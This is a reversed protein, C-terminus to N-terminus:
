KQRKIICALDREFSAVALRLQGDEGVRVKETKGMFTGSQPDYWRVEYAGPLMGPIEQTFDGVQELQHGESVMSWQYNLNKMWLAADAGAYIARIFGFVQEDPKAALRGPVLTQFKLHAQGFDLEGAFRALDGFKHWLDLPDIYNDWWWSMPIVPTESFWGAWISNHLGIHQSDAKATRDAGRYEVGFEGIVMPKQYFDVAMEHIDVMHPAMNLANYIHFMAYDMAPSRFADAVKEPYNRTASTSVLRQHVDVSKIFEAMEIHWRNMPIAQGAMLDAENYFEWTGLSPSHGFRSVIYKYKRKFHEIAVANTFLEKGDTCPGGNIKNYPSDLWRNERFFGQGKQAIGHYDLCLMVAIGYQEALELIGDLRRASELNYVGLGTEQWEFSLNWPCMWIRTINAGNEKMKRFYHEYNDTWCVNLGIGRFTEGNEYAFTANDDALVLGGRVGPASNQVPISFAARKEGNIIINFAHEGAQKPAFRAEWQERGAENKGDYFFSLSLTTLDPQRIELEIQNSRLDFPNEFGLNEQFRIVLTEFKKGKAPKELSEIAGSVNGALCVSLIMLLFVRIM